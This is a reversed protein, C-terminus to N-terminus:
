QGPSAADRPGAVAAEPWIKVPHKIYWEGSNLVVNIVNRQTKGKTLPDAIMGRNDIWGMAQIQKTEIM